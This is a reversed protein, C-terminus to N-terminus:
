RLYVETDANIITMDMNKFLILGKYYMMSLIDIEHDAPLIDSAILTQLTQYRNELVTLVEKEIKPYYGGYQSESFRRVKAALHSLNDIYYEEIFIDKETRVTHEYHNVRCWKKQREIQKRSRSDPNKDELESKYKVEQFEERGDKYLVWVDFITKVEKGDEKISAELPQECFYEVDPDMELSILNAYELNSFATIRRRIKYSVFIWYNNGYHTGRPMPLPKTFRYDDM